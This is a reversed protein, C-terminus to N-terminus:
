EGDCVDGLPLTVDLTGPSTCLVQHIAHQFFILPCKPFFKCPFRSITTSHDTPTTPAHPCNVCLVFTGVGLVLCLREFFTMEKVDITRLSTCMQACSTCSGM